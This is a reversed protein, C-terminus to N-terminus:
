NMVIFKEIGMTDGIAVYAHVYVKKENIYLKFEDLNELEIFHTMDKVDSMGSEKEFEELDKDFSTKIIKNYNNIFDAVNLNLYKLIDTNSVLEYTNKDFNYVINEEGSGAGMFGSINIVLSIINDNTFYEYEVKQFVRNEYIINYISDNIKKANENNSAICPVDLQWGNEDTVKKCVYILKDNEDIKDGVQSNNTTTTSNSTNNNKEDTLMVKDFIIYGILGCVLVILIIILCILVKNNEEM